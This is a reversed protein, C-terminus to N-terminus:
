RKGSPVFACCSTKRWAEGATHRQFYNAAVSGLTGYNTNESQGPVFGRVNAAVVKGSPEIKSLQSYEMDSRLAFERM